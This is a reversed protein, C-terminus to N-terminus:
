YTDITFMHKKNGIRFFFDIIEGSHTIDPKQYVSEIQKFVNEM